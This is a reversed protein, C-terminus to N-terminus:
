KLTFKFGCKPCKYDFGNIQIKSNCTPCRGTEIAVRMREHRNDKVRKVKSVSELHQDLNVKESHLRLRKYIAEIEDKSLQKKYPYSEIFLKLDKLNIVNEDLIEPANDNVFVVVSIVNYQGKLLKFLNIEHSKNQSLPSKIRELKKNVVKYWARFLEDYQFEGKYNKTEIVFIGHPHILIHDLQHSMNSKKNVITVDNFLHYYGSLKELTDSVKREGLEGRSSKSM